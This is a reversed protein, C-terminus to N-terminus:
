MTSDLAGWRFPSHYAAAIAQELYTKPKTRAPGGVNDAGTSNLLEVCTRVYDTAFETHADMRVVIDGKAARIAANLGSSVIRGPNDIIRVTGGRDSAMKELLDRTGDESMGDAVIIEVGREPPEQALVSRFCAEIAGAENRCPIVISVLPERCNSSEM